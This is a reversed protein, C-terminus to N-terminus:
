ATRQTTGDLAGGRVTCLVLRLKGRRSRELADRYTIRVAIDDGLRVRVESLLAREDADMCSAGRVIRIEIAGRETQVIQAERRWSAGRCTCACTM